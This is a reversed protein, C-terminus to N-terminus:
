AHGKLFCEKKFTSSNRLTSPKSFSELIRFEKTKGADNSKAELKPQDSRDEIVLISPSTTTSPVLRPCNTGHMCNTSYICECSARLSSSEVARDAVAAAIVHYLLHKNGQRNPLHCM